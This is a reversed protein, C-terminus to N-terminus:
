VLGDIYASYGRSATVIQLGKSHAYDIGEGLNAMVADKDTRWAQETTHLYWIMWGGTSLVSDVLYKYREGLSADTGYRIIDNRDISGRFNTKSGLSFACKFVRKAASHSLIDMGTSNNYVLMNGDPLGNQIMYNKAINYYKALKDIYYAEKTSYIPQGNSDYYGTVDTYIDILKQYDSVTINIIETYTEDFTYYKDATTDHYTIDTEGTVPDGQEDVFTTQNVYQGEVVAVRKIDANDPSHSYGHCVVEAGNAVCTQLEELTMFRGVGSQGGFRLPTASSAIPANLSKCFPFLYDMFDKHGDDDILTLMPPPTILRPAIAIRSIKDCSTYYPIYETITLSGDVVMYKSEKLNDHPICVRVYATNDPCTATFQEAGTNSVKREIFTKDSRYFYVRYVHVDGAHIFDRVTVEDSNVPIFDSTDNAISYEEAGTTANLLVYSEAAQWNFLNVNTASMLDKKVLDSTKRATRDYATYHPVYEYIIAEGSVIVIRIDEINETHPSCIRIYATNAPATFIYQTPGTNSEQREIFTKESDYFYARYINSVGANVFDRITFKQSDLAIFDSTDNTISYEEEGTTANLLVKQKVTEFNYINENNEARIDSIKVTNIESEKRSIRDYATYYPLYEDIVKIGEFVVIQQDEYATHPICIRIFATNAPSTFMFQTAGANSVQREIFSKNSTYFYVRYVHVGGANVFDRVSGKSATFPIFDSSDNAISYEEAGTSSNLLTFSKTTLRNYLNDGYKINIEDTNANFVGHLDDVKTEQEEVDSELTTIRSTNSNIQTEFARAKRDYATYYPIYTTITEQGEVIM